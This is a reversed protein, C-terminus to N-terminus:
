KKFHDYILDLQDSAALKAPLVLKLDTPVKGDNMLMIQAEYPQWPLDGFTVLPALEKQYATQYAKYLVESCYLHEDDMTFKLDYPRGLFKQASKIFAALKTKDKDNLRGVQYQGGEAKQFDALPTEHVNAGNAELVQWKGGKLYILGCHAIVSKSLGKILEGLPDGAAGQFIVDGDKPQYTKEAAASLTTVLLLAIIPLRM